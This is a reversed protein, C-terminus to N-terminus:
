PSLFLDQHIYESHVTVISKQSMSSFVIRSHFWATEVNKRSLLRRTLARTLHGRGRRDQFAYEGDRCASLVVHHGGPPSASSRPESFAVGDTITGSNCCDFIFILSCSASCQRILAALENDVIRQLDDCVFHEDHGDSEGSGPSQVGHGAFYVIIEDLNRSSHVLTQIRGLVNMRTVQSGRLFSIESDDYKLARKLARAVREGEGDCGPLYWEDSDEYSTSILLAHRRPHVTSRAHSRVYGNASPPSRLTIVRPLHTPDICHIKRM